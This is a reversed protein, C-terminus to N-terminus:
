LKMSELSSDRCLCCHSHPNPTTMKHLCSMSLDPFGLVGAGLELIIPVQPDTDAILSPRRCMLACHTNDDDSESEDDGAGSHFDASGLSTISSREPTTSSCLFDESVDKHEPKNLRVEGTSEGCPSPDDSDKDENQSDERYEDEFDLTDEVEQQTDSDSDDTLVASFSSQTIDCCEEVHADMSTPPSLVVLVSERTSNWCNAIEVALSDETTNKSINILNPDIDSSTFSELDSDEFNIGCGLKTDQSMFDKGPILSQVPKLVLRLFPGSSRAILRADTICHKFRQLVPLAVCEGDKYLFWDSMKNPVLYMGGENTMIECPNPDDITSYRSDHIDFGYLVRGILTHMVYDEECNIYSAYQECPTLLDVIDGDRFLSRPHEARKHPVVPHTREFTYQEIVNMIDPNLMINLNGLVEVHVLKRFTTVQMQNRRTYRTHLPIGRSSPVVEDPLNLQMKSPVTPEEDSDPKTEVLLPRRPSLLM